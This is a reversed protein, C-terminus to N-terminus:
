YCVANKFKVSGSELPVCAGVSWSTTSNPTGKCRTSFIAETINTGVCTFLHDKDCSNLYHTFVVPDQTCGSDRYQTINIATFDASAASLLLLLKSFMTEKLLSTLSILRSVCSLVSTLSPPPSKRRRRLPTM